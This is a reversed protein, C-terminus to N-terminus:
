LVKWILFIITSIIMHLIRSLLYPFYKIKTDSIITIIQMHISLGGFSIIAIAILAKINSSFSTYELYKLGQTMEFIGNIIPKYNSNINFINNILSTIILFVTISGLILIITNLANKISNSLITSFKYNNFKINKLSIKSIDKEKKNYNRLLLGIIFNGIYHSILIPIGLKKDGIFTTITGLIFLPNSFHTFTLLKTADYEDIMNNNLLEKIYYASSPCGSIMSLVIISSSNINTKFLTNSINKLLEGLVEPFGSNILINGIILSPFLSPFINNQWIEFSLKVSAIVIVNEKLVIITILIIFLIYLYNSINKKM